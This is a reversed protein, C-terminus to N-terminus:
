SCHLAQCTTPIQKERRKLDFWGFLSGRPLPPNGSIFFYIIRTMCKHTTDCMFSDRWVHTLWMVRSDTEHSMWTHHSENVDNVCSHTMDISHTVNGM